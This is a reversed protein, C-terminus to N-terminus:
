ISKITQERIEILIKDQKDMREKWEGLFHDMERKSYNKEAMNISLYNHSNKSTILISYRM